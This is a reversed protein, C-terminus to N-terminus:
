KWNGSTNADTLSGLKLTKDGIPKVDEVEFVQVNVGRQEITGADIKFKKGGSKPAIPLSDIPYNPPFISDRIAVYQTDRRVQITTDNPDGITKVLTFKKTKIVNLLSDWNSAYKGTIDKYAFQAKRVMELREVVEKKRQNRLREQIIPERVVRYLIYGVIVVGIFLAIAIATQVTKINM